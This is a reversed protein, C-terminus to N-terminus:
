LLHVNCSRNNCKEWEQYFIKNSQLCHIFCFKKNCHKEKLFIIETAVIFLDM